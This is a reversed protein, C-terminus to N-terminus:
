RGNQKGKQYWGLCLGALVVVAGVPVGLMWDAVRCGIALVLGTVILVLPADVRKM